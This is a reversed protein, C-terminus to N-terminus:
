RANDAAEWEALAKLALAPGKHNMCPEDFYVGSVSFGIAEDYLKDLAAALRGAIARWDVGTRNTTETQNPM